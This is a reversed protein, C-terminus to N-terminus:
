HDAMLIFLAVNLIEGISYMYGNLRSALSIPLVQHTLDETWTHAASVNPKPLARPQLRPTCINEYFSVQM